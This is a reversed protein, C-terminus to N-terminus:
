RIGAKRDYESRKVKDKLTTYAVNISQMRSAARPNDPHRDPHFKIALSRYAATITETSAYPSVELIRYLDPLAPVTSSSPSKSKSKPKANSGVAAPRPPRQTQGQAQTQTKQEMLHGFIDVVADASGDTIADLLDDSPHRPRPPM